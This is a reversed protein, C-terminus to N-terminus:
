CIGALCGASYTGTVTIVAGSPARATLDLRGLLTFRNSRDIHLTGGTITYVVFNPTDPDRNFSPSVVDAKALDYAGNAPRGRGSWQFYIGAPFPATTEVVLWPGSTPNYYFYALGTANASEAGRVTVAVSNTPITDVRGLVVRLGGGLGRGMEGALSGAKWTGDFLWDAQNAAQMRLSVSDNAITGTVRALHDSSALIPSWAVGAVTGGTQRLTLGLFTSTGVFRGGFNGDLTSPAPGTDAGCAALLGAVLVLAARFLSGGSM